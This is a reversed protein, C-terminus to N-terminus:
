FGVVEYVKKNARVESVSILKVMRYGKDNEDKRNSKTAEWIVVLGRTTPDYSMGKGNVHKRVGVRGTITRMTGNAKRFDVSVFKGSTLVELLKSRHLYTKM